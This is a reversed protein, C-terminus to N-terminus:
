LDDFVSPDEFRVAHLGAARAAVVNAEKDDVFVVDDGAAGLADLALAYIVPNPKVERLDCSFLRPSFPALWDLGEAARAFEVPANSLIALSRGREAARAVGALSAQNPRLWSAIDLQVLRELQAPAPSRGLVAQWFEGPSLDGRDHALRYTWYGKSFGELDLECAEALLPITEPDQPLSLVDGYDCLLWSM